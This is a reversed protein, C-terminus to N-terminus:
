PNIKIIFKLQKYNVKMIVIGRHIYIECIENDYKFDINLNMVIM